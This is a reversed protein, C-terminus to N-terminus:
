CYQIHIQCVANGSHGSTFYDSAKCGTGHFSGCRYDLQISGRGSVGVPGAVLELELELEKGMESNEAERLQM